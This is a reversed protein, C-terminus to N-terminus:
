INCDEACQFKCEFCGDYPQLNGDDCEEYYKLVYKDGCHPFCANELLQYGLECVLCMSLLQRKCNAILIFRCDQCHDWEMMQSIVNNLRILFQIVM